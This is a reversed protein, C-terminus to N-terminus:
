AAAEAHAIAVFDLPDLTEPRATPDIGAADLISENSITAVLSRRLMKRRQGFAATAIDIARGVHPPAETRDIVVVASEVRPAPEFVQPPVRFARHATGHLGVIVSPIGYTKTGPRAILRDAVEIQVVVVFRGINVANQLADLVIGTGVNYPLNSVMTWPGEDLAEGFNIRTADAFRLEVNPRNGITVDLISELAHDVEYSVVRAGSDALAVTLAGTGAGIEIVNSDSNVGSTAVIKAVMNPDVLFNQGFKKRPQHDHEALLRRVESRAQTGDDHM